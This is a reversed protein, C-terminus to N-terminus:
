KSAEYQKIMEYQKNLEDYTIFQINDHQALYDVLAIIWLFLGIGWAPILLLGIWFLFLNFKKPLKIQIGKDTRNIIEWGDEFLRNSYYDVVEDNNM